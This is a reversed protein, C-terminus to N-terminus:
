RGQVVKYVLLCPTFLQKYYVPSFWPTYLNLRLLYLYGYNHRTILLPRIHAM